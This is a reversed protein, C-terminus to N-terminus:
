KECEARFKTPSVGYVKTFMRTFYLQDSFGVQYAIEKISIDTRYLLLRANDMRIKTLYESPTIGTIEKFLRRFYGYSVNAYEALFPISLPENYHRNMYQLTASLMHGKRHGESIGKVARSFRTLLTILLASSSIEHLKDPQIFEDFVRHFARVINDQVSIDVVTNLPLEMKSILSSVESGTFHIWYYNITEGNIHRYKYYTKPSIIVFQGSKLKGQTEACIFDLEGEIIYMLYFDNRGKTKENVFGKDLHVIGTCNVAFPKDKVCINVDGHASMSYCRCRM